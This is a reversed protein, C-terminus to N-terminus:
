KWKISCGISPCQSPPGNGTIAIQLMADLLEAKRNSSNGMRADDLRGRYQLEGFKDFGFFDPTCLAGYTKAISQDEDVLYPFTFGNNKAFERMHAPSDEPVYSYDNSNIAVVNVGKMQLLKADNVLRDIINKVYPCHNCIFAIVLGNKGQLDSLNYTKGNPDLLSFPKATWGIKAQPTNMLM